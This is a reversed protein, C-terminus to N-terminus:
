AVVAKWLGRYDLVNGGYIHRIKYTIKDHSFMSGLTPNDQVFLEPEENGDLFGIEITPVENPDCSVAWDNADTWYWVPLVNMQLSEVFDTDNNTQRRFLDFATEENDFSVWLNVPPIGLRDASTLETQKLVSLRAAALESASLAASGLNNHNAHFLADGDYIAPNDKIFDLAFKSLTRKASRSLRMPIRQIAGVDDNKIAELTVEETGGRKTVAYSAKEDAPTTLATYPAGQAVTPLDGYGGLRTRENTRFDSVPVVTVLNRWVEYRTNQAYDAIMRRTISDGLVEAWTTSEVAELMRDGAAERLRQRDCNELRGTVRRDGTVEIYCEKISTVKRNSPDFFADLMEKVKDAHDEGSEIFSPDGLGRVQGGGAFSSIYEKEAEIAERVEEETFSERQDFTARLRQKAKDPLGSEAVAVRMNARAEVMRVAGQIKNDVDEPKVGPNTPELSDDDNSALAERYAAEVAEDNETDLGEPLAGKNAKKIAELMRERLKMDAQEERDDIAEILSIIEGGASPEVILDLSLVKTFKVAERVAVGGRNGRKAKAKADISFGFLDKAMKRNYAERIKQPVPAASELLELTGQLQGTDASDGAVFVPETVRGILLNFDKGKGQLHLDDSKVFVRCNKFLPAAERLVSDPYYNHNQSLGARIICIKYKLGPKDATSQDVAELFAGQAEHLDQSVPKHQVEVEVREGLMVNNQDDIAYPYSYLKGDKEIVVHDNYIAEIHVWYDETENPYLQKKLAARVLDMIQRFEGEAAERIATEGIFGTAPILKLKM